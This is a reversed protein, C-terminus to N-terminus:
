KMIKLMRPALGNGEVSILLVGEPMGNLSVTQSGIREASLLRGDTTYVKVVSGIANDSVTLTKSNSDYGVQPRIVVASIGSTFNTDTTTEGMLSNLYVELATYGAKNVFNGDTADNPNLGYKQEWEDPMGDKDTDVPVIYDTSYAYFGEADSPVDIIGKKNDGAKTGHYVTTGTKAENVIRQEVKDRNVTGVKAIVTNFADNATEINTLMYRSPIYEGSNGALSYKWWPTKTVIREDAKVDAQTYRSDWAMAKWNDANAAANGEMINGNVYMRSPAWNDIGDRGWGISVFVSGSVGQAPGPKYYNNMLNTENVSNMGNYETIRAGNEAGYCSNWRGFNYNVNNIYEMFVVYDEGRSGNFRPSRSDNHALLNHHYTAPSGGWQCGFGRNGKHHNACRLGEHVISNQVTLFHSDQTAMNEENSWGFTCHDFIFNNCNEAGVAQEDITNGYYDLDGIRFRVNRVIFNESGGFNVKNHTIVIGEGPATQGAITFDSRKISLEGSLKIQGSVAFIVTLPENPYQSLAWRLTGETKNTLDELSTVTVVKGGRGGTAYKGFGEATPFALTQTAETAKVADSVVGKLSISKVSYEAKDDASKTIKAESTIGVFAGDKYIIYGAANDDNSWTIETEGIAFGSPRAAGNLIKKYDFPVDSAKSFLFEPNMYAEVEADTAQHGFSVRNSTDVLNGNVDKNKYELYSCTKWTEDGMKTWGAKNIHSGLTCQIFMTGCNEGWPRGLFYSGDAVGDEATLTCNRFFLGAYFPTTSLEPYLIKTMSIDAKGAATVYGGGKVSRIECDEFWELGSDYIFDTAGEITCNTFYGRAGSNAKYTDQYGSIYCNNFIHADGHTFLAEAQGVNGATNRITLNEAYFRQTYVNLAACDNYNNNPNNGGRDVSSTLITTEKNEGILSIFKKSGKQGCYINEEYIGSKIYIIGRTGDPVADIADQIKTYNGSGDQAVTLLQVPANADPTAVENGNGNGGGLDSIEGVDCLPNAKAYQAQEATIENGFIKVKHVRPAQQQSIKNTTGEYTFWVALGDKTQVPNRRREGDWVRWRISVDSANIVNEMFYGQDSFVTFGTKHKESGMWVLPEWEGEGIKIDCKIGRGWSTSSWSWQIREVYPIHDIQMWGHQSITTDNVEIGADRCMQIFGAEGYIPRGNEDYKINDELYKTHGEYTWDNYNTSKEGLYYQRSFAATAGGYGNASKKNAFTVNHFNVPYKVETGGNAPVDIIANVYGGDSFSPCDKGTTGAWTDPWTEDSFNIDIIKAYKTTDSWEAVVSTPDYNETLTNAAFTQIPVAIGILMLM